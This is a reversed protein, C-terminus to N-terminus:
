RDVGYIRMFLICKGHRATVDNINGLYILTMAFEIREIPRLNAQTSYISKIQVCPNLAGAHRFHWWEHIWDIPM